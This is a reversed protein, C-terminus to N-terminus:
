ISFLLQRDALGQSSQVSPRPMVRRRSTVCAHLLLTHHTGTNSSATMPETLLLSDVTVMHWKAPSLRSASYAHTSFVLMHTCVQAERAEEESSVVTLDDEEDNGSSDVPAQDAAAAAEEAAETDQPSSTSEAHSPATILGQIGLAAADVETYTLGGSPQQEPKETPEPAQVLAAIGEHLEADFTHSGTRSGAFGSGQSATSEAPSGATHDQDLVSATTPIAQAQSQTADTNPTPAALSPETLPESQFDSATSTHPTLPQPTEAGTQADDGGNQTETETEAAADPDADPSQAQHQEHQATQQEAQAAEAASLEDQAAANGQSLHDEDLSDQGQNKADQELHHGEQFGNTHSVAAFASAAMQSHQSSSSRGQSSDLGEQSNESIDKLLARGPPTGQVCAIKQM